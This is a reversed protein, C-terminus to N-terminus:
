SKEEAKWTVAPRRAALFITAAIIIACVITLVTLVTLLTVIKDMDQLSSYTPASAVNLYVYETRTPTSAGFTYVFRLTIWGGTARGDTPITFTETASWNQDKALSIGSITITKNGGWIPSYWPYEITINKPTIDEPGWNYIWFKLTGIEGPKYQSKDTYGYINVTPAAGVISASAIAILAIATTLLLFKRKV